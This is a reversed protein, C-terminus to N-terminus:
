KKEERLEKARARMKKVKDMLEAETFFEGCVRLKEPPNRLMTEATQLWLITAAEICDAGFEQQEPTDDGGAGYMGYVALQIAHYLANHKGNECIHPSVLWASWDLDYGNELDREYAEIAEKLPKDSFWSENTM